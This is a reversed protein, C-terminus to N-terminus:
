DIYILECYVHGYNFSVRGCFYLVRIFFIVSSEQLTYFHGSSHPSIVDMFFIFNFFLIATFFVLTWLVPKRFVPSLPKAACPNSLEKIFMWTAGTKCFQTRVFPKEGAPDFMTYSKQENLIDDLLLHLDAVLAGSFCM